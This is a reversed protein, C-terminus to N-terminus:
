LNFGNIQQWFWVTLHSIFNGWEILGIAFSEHWHRPFAYTTFVAEVVEMNGLVVHQICSEFNKTKRM